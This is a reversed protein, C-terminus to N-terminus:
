LRRFAVWPVVEPDPRIHLAITIAVLPSIDVASTTRSWRRAGDGYDKQVAGALAATVTPDGLHRLGGATVAQDFEGCAQAMERGGVQVVTVGADELPTILAGAESSPDLGVATNHKKALAALTDVLGVTGLRREVLEVQPLGDPRPGAQAISSSMGRPAVDVALVRRGLTATHDELAAWAAELRGDSAGKVVWQNLYARRFEDLKGESEFSSLEDAITAESVTYGLAPMCEWWVSRDHPDAGDPASWEFYAMGREGISARGAEVKQRFWGDTPAGATSVFWLQPEPRTLMSPSFAQELRGDPQAFAEDVVALDLTPGHGSKETGASIHHRSGNKWLVAEHGNTLRKRFLPALPSGELLPIQDDVFKKRADVGTQAAYTMVQRTTFGLARHVFLALLLSTKGSQRPVTLLVRRYALRGTKPNVELAVDAVQQQWPMLPTGLQEAIQAVRGGYTSRSPNRDTAFRPPCVPSSDVSLTASRM